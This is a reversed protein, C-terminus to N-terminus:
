QHKFVYDMRIDLRITSTVSWKCLGTVYAGPSIFDECNRRRRRRRPSRTHAGLLLVNKKPVKQWEAYSISAPRDIM